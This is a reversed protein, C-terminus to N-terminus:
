SHFLGKRHPSFTKGLASAQRLQTLLHAVCLQMQYSMMTSNAFKKEKFESDSIFEGKLLAAARWDDSTMNAMCQFLPLYITLAKEQNYDIMLNMYHRSDIIGKALTGGSYWYLTLYAGAAQFAYDIDGSTMGATHATLLPALSQIPPYIRPM